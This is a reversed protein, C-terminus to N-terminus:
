KVPLVDIEAVTAFPTNGTVSLITFKLYRGKIPQPLDIKQLVDANQFKATAAPEGWNSPDNGISVACEAVHGSSSQLRPLYTVGKLDLERGMDIVIEHPMPDPTPSWKTHWFTEHSGDIADAARHDPDESDAHIVKAGMRSLVSSPKALLNDLVEPSLEQKPQFNDSALYAYLSALLQKAAPRADINDKLKMSCVLLRGKGVRAEFLVGLKKNREFNDM